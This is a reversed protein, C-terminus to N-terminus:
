IDFFKYITAINTMQMGVGLDVAFKFGENRTCGLIPCMLLGVTGAVRYCYEILEKEDKIQVTEQDSILGDLLHISVEKNLGLSCYASYLKQLSDFCLKSRTESTILNKFDKLLRSNNKDEEDAVDDLTRCFFYLLIISDRQKRPFLKSAWNFSKSHEALIKEYANDINM